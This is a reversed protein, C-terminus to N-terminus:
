ASGSAGGSSPKLGLRDSARELYALAALLVVLALFGHFGNWWEGTADTDGVALLQVVSLLLFGVAAVIAKANGWFTVIAGIVVALQGLHVFSSGAGHADVWDENGTRVYAAISFAQWLVGLVVLVSGVLLVWTLTKKM